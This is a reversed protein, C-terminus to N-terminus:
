ISRPSRTSRSQKSKGSRCVALCCSREQAAREAAEARILAEEAKKLAEQTAAETPTLHRVPEVRPSKPREITLEVKVFIMAVPPNDHVNAKRNTQPRTLDLWGQFGDPYFQSPRLNASGFEADSHLLHGMMGTGQDVFVKFLLADTAAFEPVAAAFNWSLDCGRPGHRSKVTDTRIKSMPKDAIECVCYLHHEKLDLGKGETISVKASVKQNQSHGHALNAFRAEMADEADQYARKQAAELRRDAQNEKTVKLWEIFYFQKSAGFLRQAVKTKLYDERRKQREEAEQHVRQTDGRVRDEEKRKKVHDHWTYFIFVMQEKATRAFKAAWQAVMRNRIEHVNAILTDTPLQGHNLKLNRLEKTTESLELATEELRERLHCRLEIQGAALGRAHPIDEVEDDCCNNCCNLFQTPISANTKRISDIVRHKRLRRDEIVREIELV